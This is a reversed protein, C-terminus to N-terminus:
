RNGSHHRLAAAHAHRAACLVDLLLAARADVGAAGGDVGGPHGLCLGRRRTHIARDALLAAAIVDGLALFAMSSPVIFFAIQRLGGDLRRRLYAAVEGPDGSAREVHRAAGGGLGVHRVPEGAAHLAVARQGPGHGRRTPLLSALLSDIYASVQVVGRSVFVPM